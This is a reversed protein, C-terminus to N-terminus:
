GEMIGVMIGLMIGMMTLLNAKLNMISDAYGSLIFCHLNRMIGIMIGVM